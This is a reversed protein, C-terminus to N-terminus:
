KLIKLTLSVKDEEVVKAHDGVEIQDPSYASWIEGRVDVQYYYDTGSSNQISLVKASEGLIDVYGQKNTRTKRVSKQIYWSLILTTSSVLFLVIYIPVRNFLIWYNEFDFFNLSGMFLCGLGLMTLIGFSTIFLELYFFVFSLAMFLVSTVNIPLKGMGYLALILFVSGLSGALFGGPVQFEIYLLVLGLLYLLYSINPSSLFQYLRDMNDTKVNEIELDNAFETSSLSFHKSNRLWDKLERPNSVTSHIAQLKLASKATFSKGDVLMQRFPGLKLKNEKLRTELLSILQNTVKAKMSKSLERGDSNVPIASGITSAPHMLALDCSGLLIAGASTAQAQAASTWCIVPYPMKEFSKIYQTLSAISGGPTDINLLILQDSQVQKRHKEFIEYSVEGIVGTIDIQLLGYIEKNQGWSLPHFILLLFCILIIKAPTM